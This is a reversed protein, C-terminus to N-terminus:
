KLTFPAVVSESVQNGDRFALVQWSYSGSPLVVSEALAVSTGRVDRVEFSREGASNFVVVRYSTAGEVPRWSFARDFPVDPTPKVVVIPPAPGATGKDTGETGCAGVLLALVVLLARNTTAASM